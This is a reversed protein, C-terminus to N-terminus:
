RKYLMWGSGALVASLMLFAFHPMNPILGMAGLIGATIFMVTPNNLLQGIMQQGIDENTAVRSVVVG